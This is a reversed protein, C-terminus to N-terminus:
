SACLSANQYPSFVFLAKQASSSAFQRTRARSALLNRTRASSARLRRMRAFRARRGGGEPAGGGWYSTRAGEFAEGAECELAGAWKAGLADGESGVSRGRLRTQMESWRQEGGAPGKSVGDGRLHSLSMHTNSRSVLTQVIKDVSSLVMSPVTGLMLDHGHQDM